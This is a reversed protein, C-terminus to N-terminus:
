QTEVREVVLTYGNSFQLNAEKAYWQARVRYKGASLPASAAEYFGHFPFPGPPLISSSTLDATPGVRVRVQCDSLALPFAQTCYSAGSVRVLLFARAGQPIDVDLEAFTLWSGATRSLKGDYTRVTVGAIAQGSRTQDHTQTAAFATAAGAMLIATVTAIWRRSPGRLGSNPTQHM